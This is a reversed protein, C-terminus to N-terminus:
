AGRAKGYGRKSKATGGAASNAQTTPTYGVIGGSAFGRKRNAQALGKKDMANDAPSDEFDKMTLKPKVPGGKAYGVAAREMDDLKQRRTRPALTDATERLTNSGSGSDADDGKDSRFGLMNRGLRRNESAPVKVYEGKQLVEAM